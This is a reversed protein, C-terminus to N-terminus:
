QAQAADQEDLSQDLAEFARSILYTKGNSAYAVIQDQSNIAVAGMFVAGDDLKAFTNLDVYKARRPGAIFARATPHVEDLYQGVIHGRANIAFAQSRHLGPDLDVLTQGDAATRFAHNIGNRNEAWGVVVGHANVGLATSNKGGLTGLDRIAAGDRGTVFAHVFREGATCGYGAVQGHNNVANASACIGSLHGVDRMGTGGAETIFAHEIKNAATTSWGVVQGSRNVATAQSRTGGLTGLDVVGTSGPNTMFARMDLGFHDDNLAGVNGVVVGAENVAAVDGVAVGDLGRAGQGGPDTVFPSDKGDVRGIGVVVAANNLGTVMADPALAIETMTIVPRQAAHVTGACLALLAAAAASSRFFRSRTM